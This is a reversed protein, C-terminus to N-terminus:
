QGESAAETAKASNITLTFGLPTNAPIISGPPSQPGYAKDSPIILQVTSGVKEGSLGETWGPIVANLPLDIPVNKGTKKSSDFITGDPLWGFYSVNITDTKKVKKGDGQKLVKKQLTKVDDADFKKVKYGDLPQSSAAAAKGSEEQQKQLADYQKRQNAQDIKGNHNSLAMVAFSGLTGVMMVVAIVWIGIRQSKPTAM